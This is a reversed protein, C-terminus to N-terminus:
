ECLVIYKRGLSIKGNSYNNMLLTVNKRDSIGMYEVHDNQISRGKLSIGFIDINQLIHVVGIRCM